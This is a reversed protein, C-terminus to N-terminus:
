PMQFFEVEGTRLSYRAGVILLGEEIELKHLIPSDERLRETQMTVNSRIARELVDDPADETVDNVLHEIAPRITEVITQLHRPTEPTPARLQALTAEVAGCEQHGLVVILRTGLISAAFEISGIQTPSAINGAVRVVFLDGPGQDFLIEVPVRSDSCGLIAAM